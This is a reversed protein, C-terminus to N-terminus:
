DYKRSTFADLTQSEGARDRSIVSGFRDFQEMWTVSWFDASIV